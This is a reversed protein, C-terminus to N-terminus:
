GGSRYILEGSVETVLRGDDLRLQLGGQDDVGEAVGEYLIEEEVNFGYAVRRGVTDSLRSWQQLLLPASFPGQRGNRELANAEEHLLLGMNWSLKALLCVLVRGLDVEQGTEAALSTARDRLADPFSSNNANLGIGLLYYRDGRLGTETTCLIGGIKKGQVHIDNVWKLWAPVGYQRVTECCALGVAFPVLRAFFPLLIDPWAMALWIGGAPAYWDRRFRGTARDLRGAQVVTGAPLVRGQEEEERILQRLRDMCRDLRHYREIRSAVPEGYRLIRAITEEPFTAARVAQESSRLYERVALCLESTARIESTSGVGM